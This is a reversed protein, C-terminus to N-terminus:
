CIGDLCKTISTKLKNKDYTIISYVDNYNLNKNIM